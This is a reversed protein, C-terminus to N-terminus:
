RIGVGGNGLLTDRIGLIVATLPGRRKTTGNHEKPKRKEHGRYTSHLVVDGCLIVAAQQVSRAHEEGRSCM